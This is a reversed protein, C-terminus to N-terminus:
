RPQLSENCILPGNGAEASTAAKEPRYNSMIKCLDYKDEEKMM